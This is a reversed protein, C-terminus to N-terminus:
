LEIRIQSWLPRRELFQTPFETNGRGEYCLGKSLTSFASDTVTPYGWGSPPPPPLPAQSLLYPRHPFSRPDPTWRHAGM